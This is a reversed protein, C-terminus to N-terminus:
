VQEDDTEEDETDTSNTDYIAFAMDNIFTREKAAASVEAPTAGEPTSLSDLLVTEALQAAFRALLEGGHEPSVRLCLNTVMKAVEEATAKTKTKTKTTMNMSQRSTTRSM